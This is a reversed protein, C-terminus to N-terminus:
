KGKVYKDLWNTIEWLMHLVSEKARYAHSEHPLMVLRTNTGHGKLANFLRESQMPYTGANNDAEGHILLLPSKIKDAHVFPSMQMYVEPVEWFTREESQFGFPTLTRNYAGSRAIGAAFLDTHALLNATMFAGYSHGGVAIRDRDAVGMEVLTDIAAKASMQLQPIFTENPEEDGEGVIPMGFDDFVAYGQTVWFLPASWRLHMFEYPSNKIQSATDKSKYEKPYAWMFVPLQGDREKDYNAPLYLTGTLEIGDERRYRVLERQVNKLAEYPHEFFTIAREKQKLINKLFYNPPEQKSEKRSIILGKKPDLVLLPHEYFPAESQWLRNTTKTAIKYENLFPQNGKPSAGNGRLYLTQGDDRQMLVLRGYANREQEFSGPDNYADEWSREFLTTKEAKSHKPQWASTIMKRNQWWWEVSIALNEDGWNTGGYRLRFKPGGQPKSTFPVDWFYLQDRYDAEIKPDGQDQAEVWYLTAPLDPRWNINRPGQRVAGFGQPINEAMPIRAIKKLLKGCREYVLAEFPFRGYPVNYSFPEKIKSVLFYQGDPSTTFGNIIGDIQLAQQQKTEIDLVYLESSSYYTFLQEDFDNRLLDQYTRLVARTGENTQIVPGKPVTPAKMVRGRDQRITKYILTKSDSFWKYPFTGMADNLIPATLQTAQLSAVDIIWLEIGRARTHTFAITSSDPSWSVNEIRAKRPLGKIAHKKDKALPRLWLGSYYASRSAGNTKPNIRLGALRLEKQAVQEISPFNPRELFLLWKADPSLRLGPTSPTNILDAIVKSPTQYVADQQAKKLLVM